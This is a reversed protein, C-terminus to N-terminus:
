ETQIKLGIILYSKWQNIYSIHLLSFAVNLMNMTEMWYKLYNKKQVSM